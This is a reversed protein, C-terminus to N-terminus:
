QARVSVEAVHSYVGTSNMVTNIGPTDTPTNCTVISDLYDESIFVQDLRTWTKTVNHLHTPIGPPLALDLGFGAVASILIDTNNLASRTFLRTDAPDDWHPHYKNFDGLWVISIANDENCGLPNAHAHSFPELQLITDNTECNNYVNFITLKGWTGNLHVVTMDGSPFDVQKWNETLINSRILLLSHTKTPDTDNPIGTDM